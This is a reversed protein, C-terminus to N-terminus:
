SSADVIAQLVPRITDPERGGFKERLGLAAMDAIKARTARTMRTSAGLARLLALSESMEHIRREAHVATGCVYRKIIQEFPREDVSGALDAAVEDLIGHRHAAELSELLVSALGKMCVSRILKMATASGPKGHVVQINMGYRTLLECARGAATGSVVIPVKIGALPVANMIAADVFSARSGILRDIREMAEVAGTSADIYIHGPKLHARISRAAAVAAAGPTVAMILDARQALERPSAALEVGAEMAYMRLPDDAAAKAARRSYAVIDRCGHSRLGKAFSHAVEGFGLFGVRVDEGAAKDADMDKQTEM